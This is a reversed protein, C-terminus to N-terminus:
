YMVQGASANFLGLPLRCCSVDLLWTALLCCTSPDQASTWVFVGFALLWSSSCVSAPQCPAATCRAPLQGVPCKPRRYCYCIAGRQDSPPLPLPASRLFVFLLRLQRGGDSTFFSFSREPYRSPTKPPGPKPHALAWRSGGTPGGRSGTCAL